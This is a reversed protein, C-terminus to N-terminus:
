NDLLNVTVTVTVTVTVENVSGWLGLGGPLPFTCGYCTIIPYPMFEPDVWIILYSM